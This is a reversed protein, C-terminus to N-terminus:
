RFCQFQGSPPLLPSTVSSHKGHIQDNLLLDAMHCYIIYLIYVKIQIFKLKNTIRTDLTSVEFMNCQSQNYLSM